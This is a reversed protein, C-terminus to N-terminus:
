RAGPITVRTNTKWDYYHGAEHARDWAEQAGAESEGCATVYEQGRKECIFYKGDCKYEVRHGAELRMRLERPDNVLVTFDHGELPNM